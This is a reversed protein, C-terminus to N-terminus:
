NSTGAPAPVPAGAGAAPAAAAAKQAEAARKAEVLEKVTKAKALLEPYNPDNLVKIAAKLADDFELDYVPANGLSELQDRVLRELIAAPLPYTPQLSAAFANREAVTAAPHATAFAALKGSEILKGLTDTQAKSLEPEKVELDPPIGTKDINEDSPTYYRATTLKFGTSGIPFVQQVSGKGYSNEGVLYARKNDKLAGALIESASASGRNILVVVPIDAPVLAKGTARAVSNEFVNRSKTSVIIGSDIFDGAVGIVAQLLGGPDNRVDVIMARYGEKNFADIADDVRAKTAATFEIIRLYAINGKPTPILASKVTPIEIQARVLRVDFESAKGRQITLLVTSGEPGRIRKQAEEVTLHATPEGDIKTILDGPKIGAKFGPTDEIPSVVEIYLNQNPGLAPDSAQKSIYLGVGGFEGSTVDTMDSLMAEDLFVSYPDGLSEFMGKMAGEYLKKPDPADVYDQLIFNFTNQLIETYRRAEAATQENTQAFARPATVSFASVLVMFVAAVGWAIRHGRLPKQDQTM